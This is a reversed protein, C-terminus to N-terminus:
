VWRAKVRQLSQRRQEAAASADADGEVGFVLPTLAMTRSFRAGFEAFQKLTVRLEKRRDADEDLGTLMHEPVHLQAFARPSEAFNLTPHRGGHLAVNAADVAAAAELKSPFSRARASRTLAHWSAHRAGEGGTHPRQRM